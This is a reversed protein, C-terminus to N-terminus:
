PTPPTVTTSVTTAPPPTPKNKAKNIIGEIVSALDKVDAVMNEIEVSTLKGDNSAQLANTAIDKIDSLASKSGKLLVALIPVGIAGSVALLAYIANLVGAIQAPDFNTM